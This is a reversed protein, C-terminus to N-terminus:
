QQGYPCDRGTTGWAGRTQPAAKVNILDMVTVGSTIARDLIGESVGLVM